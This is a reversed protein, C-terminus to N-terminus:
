LSVDPSPSRTKKTIRGHLGTICVTLLFSAKLGLSKALAGAGSVWWHGQDSHPLGSNRNRLPKALFTLIAELDSWSFWLIGQDEGCIFEKGVHDEFVESPWQVPSCPQWESGMMVLGKYDLVVTARRLAMPLQKSDRYAVPPKPGSSRNHSSQGTAIFTERQLLCM